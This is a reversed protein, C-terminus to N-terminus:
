QVYAFLRFQGNSKIAANKTIRHDPHGPLGPKVRVRNIPSEMGYIQSMCYLACCIFIVYQKVLGNCKQCTHWLVTKAAMLLWQVPCTNWLGLFMAKERCLSMQSLLSSSMNFWTAVSGVALLRALRERPAWCWRHLRPKSHILMNCTVRQLNNIVSLSAECCHPTYIFSHVLSCIM